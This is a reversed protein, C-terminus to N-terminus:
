GARSLALTHNIARTLKEAYAPDTAYGARQMSAAFGAADGGQRLVEAYRPNQTLLRAYDEFAERYSGYARFKEVQKRAVGNAYETTLTDTSAGRWSAGAKIGFLNFSNSGDANRIERKGWGSELAAQGLIFRAPVGTAREAAQAEPLLRQVFAQADASGGRAVSNASSLRELMERTSQPVQISVAPADVKKSPAAGQSRELQKVIMDAIGMGKSGMRTALEQDLMATYTRSESSDVLDSQPMADRMSKLLMQMFLAEFQKAAGALARDPESKATRKLADLGRSDLSLSANQPSM